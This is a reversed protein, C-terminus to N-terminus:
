KVGSATEKVEPERKAAGGDGSAGAKEETLAAGDTIGVPDETVVRAGAALGATVEIRGSESLGTDIKKVHAVGGELVVVETSGDAAMRVAARPILIANPHTLVAVRVQVPSGLAVHAPRSKPRLRVEGAGTAADIAGAIGTILAALPPSGAEGDLGVVLAAQGARLRRLVSTTGSATIEWGDIAAIEVVPTAPTGDVFDGVRRDIRVIVGAFPATLEAWARRRRATELAAQDEVRASDAAVAAAEASEAEERAAVGKAVLDLSRVAVGRKFLADAQSRRAAAEASKMEDDLAGAEVRALVAGASVSEGVRAGLFVIRGPVLPALTADQDSPPAVRGQLDMWDTIAGEEALATKVVTPEPKEEPESRGACGAVALPLLALLSWKRV